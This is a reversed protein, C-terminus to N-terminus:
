KQSDLNAGQKRPLKRAWTNCTAVLFLGAAFTMAAESLDYYSPQNEQHFGYDSSKNIAFFHLWSFVEAFSSLAFYLGLALFVTSYLRQVSVGQLDFEGDNERAVLRSFKPACFWVVIGAVCYVVSPTMTYAAFYGDRNMLVVSIVQLLGTVFWKLAFIRLFIQAVRSTPMNLSLSNNVIAVFDSTM